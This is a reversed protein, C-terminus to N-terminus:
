SVTIGKTNPGYSGQRAYLLVYNDPDLAMPSRWRGRSNTTASGKIYTVTRRGADWDTKLFAQITANDIGQLSSTMYSLNDEGGYNHDILVSGDGYIETRTVPTHDILMTVTDVATDEERGTIEVRLVDGPELSIERGQLVVAPGAEVLVASNPAVNIDNLFVKITYNGSGIIPTDDNGAQVRCVVTKPVSGDLTYTLVVASTSIDLGDHSESHLAM